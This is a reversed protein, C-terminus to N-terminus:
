QTSEHDVLTTTSVVPGPAHVTCLSITSFAVSMRVFIPLFKVPETRATRTTSAHMLTKRLFKVCESAPQGLLM